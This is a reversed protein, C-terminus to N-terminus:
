AARLDRADHRDRQGRRSVKSGAADQARPLVAARARATGLPRRTRRLVAPYGIADVVFGSTGMLLKGPLTMISTFLAYQTATYATNTLGSLFAIFISAPCAAWWTTSASPSPSSRRPRARGVWALGSFTLNSAAILFVAPVLLASVGLRAVVMGGLLTGLITWFLRLDQLRRRDPGQQVGHRHLVPQGDRGHRHGVASCHRHVAAAPRGDLRLARLLRRVPLRHRRRLLALNRVWDPM